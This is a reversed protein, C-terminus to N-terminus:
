FQVNGFKQEFAELEADSAGLELNTIQNPNGHPQSAPANVGQGPLAPPQGYPNSHPHNSHQNQEFGTPMAQRQHQAGPMVQTPQPAPPTEQPPVFHQEQNVTAPDVPQGTVPDIFSQSWQDFQPQPQPEPTAQIQEPSAKRGTEEFYVIKLAEERPLYQGKTQYDQRLTEVKDNFKAFRDNNYQQKYSLEDTKDVVFGIQQEVTQKLPDILNQFMGQIKANLAEDVKPDFPSEVPKAPAQPGNINKAMYDVQGRLQSNQDRMAKLENQLEELRHDPVPHQGPPMQVPQNNNNDPM